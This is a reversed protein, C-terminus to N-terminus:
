LYCLYLTTMLKQQRRLVQTVQTAAGERINDGDNGARQGNLDNFPLVENKDVKELQDRIARYCGRVWGSGVAPGSGPVRVVLDM